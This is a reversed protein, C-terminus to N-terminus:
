LHFILCPDLASLLNWCGDPVQHKQRGLVQDAQLVTRGAFAQARPENSRKAHHCGRFTLGFSNSSSLVVRPQREGGGQFVDPLWDVQVAQSTKYVAGCTEASGVDDRGGQGQRRFPATMASGVDVLDGRMVEGLEADAM